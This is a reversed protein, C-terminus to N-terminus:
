KFILYLCIFSIEGLVSLSVFCEFQEKYKETGESFVGVNAANFLVTIQSAEGLSVM